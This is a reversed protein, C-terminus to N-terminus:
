CQTGSTIGLACIPQYLVYIPRFEDLWSEIWLLLAVAERVHHPEIHLFIGGRRDPHCGGDRNDSSEM